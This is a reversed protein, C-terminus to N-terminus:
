SSFGNGQILRDIIIGYFLNEVGRFRWGLHEGCKKCVEIRWSYGKFWSFAETWSSQFTCGPAVSFCSIRFFFGHPNAFTHIHAGNVVIRMDNSTIINLCRKCFLFSNLGYKDSEEKKQTNKNQDQVLFKKTIPRLKRNKCLIMKVKDFVDNWFAINIGFLYDTLGILPKKM